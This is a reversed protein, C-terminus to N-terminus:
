EGAPGFEVEYFHITVSGETNTGVERIAAVRFQQRIYPDSLEYINGFHRISFLGTKELKQYLQREVVEGIQPPPGNADWRGNREMTSLFGSGQESTMKQFTSVGGSFFCGSQFFLLCVGIGWFSTVHLFSMSKDMSESNASMAKLSVGM